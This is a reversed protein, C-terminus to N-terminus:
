IHIRVALEVLHHAIHEGMELSPLRLLVPNVTVLRDQGQPSEGAAVCGLRVRLMVNGPNLTQKITNQFNDVRQSSGKGGTATEQDLVYGSGTSRSDIMHHFDKHLIQDFKASSHLLDTSLIAIDGDINDNFVDGVSRTNHLVEPEGTLILIDLWTKISSAPQFSQDLLLRSVPTGYLM